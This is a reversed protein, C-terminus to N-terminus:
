RESGAIHNQSSIEAELKAKALHSQPMFLLGQRQQASSNEFSSSDSSGSTSTSSFSESKSSSSKQNSRYSPPYRHVKYCQDVTHGPINCHTYSLRDKKKNNNSLSSQNSNANSSTNKVLLAANQTSQNSVITQYSPITRQEVEQIVSSFAKNISPELEMLLLQTHIQSFSENLGMLFTMVHETQLYTNLDKVGDCTCRGCSCSPRYSALENWLTKWKAYYTTVSDQSQTLNSLERRIQYAHLCNKRQYQEQLDVWIDQALDSFYVSASIEKSLSNLIWTTVVSNCVIWSQHMEGTPHVISSDIFGLKNKMTLGIKM